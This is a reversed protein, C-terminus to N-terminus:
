PTAVQFGPVRRGARRTSRGHLAGTPPASQRRSVLSGPEDRRIIDIADKVRRCDSSDRAACLNGGVRIDFGKATGDATSGAFVQAFGRCRMRPFVALREFLKGIMHAQCEVAIWARTMPDNVHQFRQM